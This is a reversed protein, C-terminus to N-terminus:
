GRISDLSGSLIKQASVTTICEMIVVLIVLLKIKM